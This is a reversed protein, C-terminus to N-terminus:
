AGGAPLAYGVIVSEALQLTGHARRPPTRDSRHGRAPASATITPMSGSWEQENLFVQTKRCTHTFYIHTQSFRDDGGTGAPSVPHSSKVAQQHEQPAM